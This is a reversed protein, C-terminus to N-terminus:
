DGDGRSIMIRAVNRELNLRQEPEYAWGLYALLAAGRRGRSMDNWPKVELCVSGEGGASARGGM